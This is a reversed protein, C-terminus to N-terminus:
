DKEGKYWKVFRKIGDEIAVQPNYGLMKKSKTIDAYTISVDGLQMPLREIVAKKGLVDEILSILDKLKVTRSEGINFIEYGFPNKIAKITGDIADDIYTYDRLSEGDGYVPIPEDRDIMRTFKHIAMEPRQRPGYVTFYRLCTVPIDYLRHYTYCLIECTKKTAGYPSVPNDVTDNESFPIKKNDGYVSSSSAFVFHRVQLDKALELMNITGKINVDAYLLPNQISARVGALAALHIIIDIDKSSLDEKLFNTDRIDAEIFRFNPNLLAESINTRKIAPDYFDDLNDICIVKKGVKLLNEVLHSGIFGAGGTVLYDGM